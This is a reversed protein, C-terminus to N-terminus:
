WWAARTATVQEVGRTEASAAGEEGGAGDRGYPALVLLSAVGILTERRTAGDIEPLPPTM